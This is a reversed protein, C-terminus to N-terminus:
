VYGTIRLLNSLRFCYLVNYSIQFCWSNLVASDWIINFKGFDVYSDMKTTVVQIKNDINLVAIPWHFGRVNRRMQSDDPQHKEMGSNIDVGPSPGLVNPEFTM